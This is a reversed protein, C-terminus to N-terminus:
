KLITSIYREGDTQKILGYLELKTLIVMLDNINLNTKQIIYDINATDISILEFVEKEKNNLQKTSNLEQNKSDNYQRVIEWNMTNLIDEACTVMAAGNKLLKYIGQTNPNSIAGPICMLERGQELTLNATILAGSKLAAEAVLTGKSIGSVIRNRQPFRWAIPEATPWYESLVAGYKDKIENFLNRNSAPYLKEFGGGIVGITTLNNRIAAEHATTDIGTALGSVICIDSDRLESIIESLIAKSQESAKRSGVVAITRDINCRSIDGAMFLTMPPDFINRLLFPYEEDEYTIFDIDKSKIYSLCDDPNIKSRQNVFVDFQKKTMGEVQLLETVDAKWALEIDGFHEYLKQVFQSSLKEFAAFALWYKSNNNM